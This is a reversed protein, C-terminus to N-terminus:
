SLTHKAYTSLTRAAMPNPTVKLSTTAVRCLPAVAEKRRCRMVGATGIVKEMLCPSGMVVNSYLMWNCSYRNLLDQRPHGERVELLPNLGINIIPDGQTLILIVEEGNVSDRPLKLIQRPGDEVPRM